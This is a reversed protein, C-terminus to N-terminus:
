LILEGDDAKNQIPYSRRLLDEMIQIKKRYNNIIAEIILQNNVGQKLETKLKIYEQDLEDIYSLFDAQEEKTLNTNNKVLQIQNEVLSKYHQDIQRFEDSVIDYEGDINDTTYFMFMCGFLLVIAAAVRFSAKKWLPIVKPTTEPLEESIKAWLKLKDAEDVSYDDFQNKHAQIYEKLEDRM